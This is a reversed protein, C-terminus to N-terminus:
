RLSKGCQNCFRADAGNSAGCQPCLRRETSSVGSGSRRLEVQCNKCYRANWSNEAGCNWCTKASRIRRRQREEYAAEDLRPPRVLLYGILAIPGLALVVLAWLCGISSEYRQSADSYVWFVAVWSLVWLLVVITKLTIGEGTPLINKTARAGDKV